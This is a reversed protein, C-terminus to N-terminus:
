ALFNPLDHPIYKKLARTYIPDPVKKRTILALTISGEAFEKQADKIYNAAAIKSYDGAAQKTQDLATRASQLLEQAREFEQRHIARIAKAQHGYLHSIRSGIIQSM